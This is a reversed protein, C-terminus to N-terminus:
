CEIIRADPHFKKFKKITDETGGTQDKSRCAILVESHKAIETNRMFYAAPSGYKKLKPPFELYPIDHLKWLQKAFLDAGKKCGGSCIWDGETYIEFFKEWVIERDHLTNRRRSGVVGIIM